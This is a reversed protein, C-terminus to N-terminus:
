IAPNYNAGITLFCGQNFPQAMVGQEAFGFFTGPPIQLVSIGVGAPRPLAGSQTLIAFGVPTLDFEITFRMKMFGLDNVYARGMSSFLTQLMRNLNPSTTGVINAYAKVLILTRYADDSLSYNSTIPPAGSNFPAQNFPAYDPPKIDDNFGFYTPQSSITLVRSVVVIRGWVDLGYGVATDINWVNNFWNDFNQRPDVAANFTEILSLLAASNGYQSIVTVIPDLM